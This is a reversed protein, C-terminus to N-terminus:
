LSVAQGPSRRYAFASKYLAGGSLTCWRTAIERANLKAAGAGSYDAGARLLGFFLAWAINRGVSGDVPVGGANVGVLAESVLLADWETL